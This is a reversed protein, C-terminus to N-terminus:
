IKISGSGLSSFANLPAFDDMDVDEESVHKNTQNFPEKEMAEEEHFVHVLTVRQVNLANAWANVLWGANEVACEWGGAISDRTRWLIDMLEVHLSLLNVNGLFAQQRVALLVAVALFMAFAIGAGCLFLGTMGGVREASDDSSFGINSRTMGVTPLITPLPLAPLTPSLQGLAAGGGGPMTIGHSLCIDSDVACKGDPLWVCRQYVFRGNPSWPFVGGVVAAECDGRGLNSLQFCWLPPDLVRINLRDRVFPCLNSHDEKTGDGM